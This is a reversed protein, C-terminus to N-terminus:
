PACDLGDNRDIEAQWSGKEEKTLTVEVQGDKVIKHDIKSISGPLKNIIYKYPYSTDGDKATISVDISLEKFSCKVDPKNKGWGFLGKKKVHDAFLIIKCTEEKDYVGDGPVTPSARGSM